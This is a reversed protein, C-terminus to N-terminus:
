RPCHSGVESNVLIPKNNFKMMVEYYTCFNNIHYLDTKQVLLQLFCLWAIGAKITSIAACLENQVKFLNPCVHRRALM